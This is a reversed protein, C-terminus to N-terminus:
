LGKEIMKDFKDIIMDAIHSDDKNIAAYYMRLAPSVNMENFWYNSNTASVTHDQVFLDITIFRSALINAMNEAIAIYDVHMEDILEYISAGKKIMTFKNFELIENSRLVTKSALHKEDIIQADLQPYRIYKLSLAQRKKNEQDILASVTRQGDGIIRPTQRLLVSVVVGDIVTFRLEDGSVQQQVLATSSYIFAAELARLLHEKDVVDLTVGQSGFSDLPKVVWRNYQDFLAETATYEGRKVEITDPVSVGMLRVLAYAASKDNAVEFVLKSTTPYAINTSTLWSNGNSSTVRIFPKESVRLEEISYGRKRLGQWFPGASRQSKKFELIV